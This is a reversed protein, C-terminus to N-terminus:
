RTTRVNPSPQLREPILWNTLPVGAVMLKEVTCPVSRVPPPSPCRTNTTPLGLACPEVKLEHNSGLAKARGGPAEVPCALLFLTRLGPTLLLSMVNDLRKGM